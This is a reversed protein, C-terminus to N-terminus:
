SSELAEQCIICRAAYPFTELRVNSIPKGCDVCFGYEGNSIRHLADDIRKLEDIETKELSTKLKEMCFLLAEDGSDKVQGDSVKDHSVTELQEMMEKRRKFLKKKVRELLQVRQKM